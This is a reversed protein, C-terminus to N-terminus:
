NAVEMGFECANIKAQTWDGSDSPDDVLIDGQKETFSDSLNQATQSYDTSGTRIFPDIKINATPATRKCNQRIQVGYIAADDLDTPVAPYAYSDKDGPDIGEVYDSSSYGTEDVCEYNAGASPTLDTYNGAGNPHITDIRIDGLFDNNESGETDALYMDDIQTWQTGWQYNDSFRFQAVSISTSATYYTDGTFDMLLEEDLRFQAVGTSGHIKYKIEMYYWRGLELKVTDYAVYWNVWAGFGLNGVSDMTLVFRNQTGQGFELFPASTGQNDFAGNFMVAFGLIATRTNPILTFDLNLIGDYLNNSKFRICKGGNRGTQYSWVSFSTINILGGRSNADSPSTYGEFGDFKLLTM